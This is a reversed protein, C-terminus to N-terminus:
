LKLVFGIVGSIVILLIPHMKLKYQLGFLAAFVGLALYNLSEVGMKEQNLLAMQIVSISAIAILALTTPKLGYFASQVYRNEKWRELGKAALCVLILSPAVLSLTAVIGGFIGYTHVGVYTAMNVGIPGPTSESIAIMISLDELTFWGYTNSLQQLFPITALGGGVALLGIKFFEIILLIM